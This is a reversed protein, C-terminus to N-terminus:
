STICINAWLLPFVKYLPINIAKLSGKNNTLLSVYKHFEYYGLSHVNGVCIQSNFSGSLDTMSIKIHRPYLIGLLLDIVNM